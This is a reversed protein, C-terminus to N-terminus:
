FMVVHAHSCQSDQIAFYKGALVLPELDDPTTHVIYRKDSRGFFNLKGMTESDESKHATFIPKQPQRKLMECVSRFHSESTSLINNTM